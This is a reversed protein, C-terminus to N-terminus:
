GSPQLNSDQGPLWSLMLAAQPIGRAAKKRVPKPPLVFRNRRRDRAAESKDGSRRSRFIRRGKRGIRPGPPLPHDSPDPEKGPGARGRPCRHAPEHGGCARRLDRDTGGPNEPGSRVGTTRLPGRRGPRRRHGLFDQRNGHLHKQVRKIIGAVRPPPVRAKRGGSSGAIRTDTLSRTAEPLQFFTVTPPIRSTRRSKGAIGCAGLPTEFLCYAGQKM